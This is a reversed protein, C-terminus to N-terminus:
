NMVKNGHCQPCTIHTHGMSRLFSKGCEECLVYSDDLGFLPTYNYKEIRGNGHCLSCVHNADIGFNDNNSTNSQTPIVSPVSQITPYTINYHAFPTLGSNTQTSRLQKSSLTSKDIYEDIIESLRDDSNYGDYYKIHRVIIIIVDASASISKKIIWNDKEDYEYTYNTNENHKVLSVVNVVNDRSDYLYSREDTINGDSDKQVIKTVKTFDPNDYYEILSVGNAYDFCTRTQDKKDYVNKKSLFLDGDENRSWCEILRGQTDYITKSLLKGDESYELKEEDNKSEYWMVICEQNQNYRKTVRHNDDYEEFLYRDTKQTRGDEFMFINTRYTKYDEDEYIDSAGFVRKNRKGTEDDVYYYHEEYLIRRGKNDYLKIDSNNVLTKNDYDMRTFTQKTNKGERDFLITSTYRYQGYQKIKGTETVENEVPSDDYYYYSDETMSEVDQRLGYDQATPEDPLDRAYIRSEPKSNSSGCQCFFVITLYFCLYFQIIDKRM